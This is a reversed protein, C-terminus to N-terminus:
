MGGVMEEHVNKVVLDRTIWRYSIESQTECERM